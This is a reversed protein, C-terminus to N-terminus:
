AAVLAGTRRNLQSVHSRVKGVAGIAAIVFWCFRTSGVSESLVKVETFSPFPLALLGVLIALGITPGHLAQAHQALRLVSGSYLMIQILAIYLRSEFTQDLMALFPAGIVALFLQYLYPRFM